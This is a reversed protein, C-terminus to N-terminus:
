PPLDFLDQGLPSQRTVNSDETDAVHHVDEEEIGFAPQLRVHQHAAAIPVERQPRHGIRRLDGIAMSTPPLRPAVMEVMLTVGIASTIMTRSIMKMTVIGAKVRWTSRGSAVHARARDSAGM